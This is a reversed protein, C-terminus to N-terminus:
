EGHKGMFILPYFKKNWRFADPQRGEEVFGIMKGMRLIREDATASSIRKLAFEKLFLDTIERGAKVLTKNWISKDWIKFTMNCKFEPLIDTFGIIAQFDGIEYFVNFTYGSFYQALILDAAGDTRYEDSIWLYEKLMLTKFKALKKYFDLDNDNEPKFVKMLPHPSTLKGVDLKKIDMM